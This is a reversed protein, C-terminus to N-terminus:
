PIRVENESTILSVVISMFMNVKMFVINDFLKKYFFTYIFACGKEYINAIICICQCLNCCDGEM